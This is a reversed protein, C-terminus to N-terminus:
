KSRRAREALMTEAIDYAHVALVANRCILERDPTNWGDIAAMAGLAQGAFYDLLTMGDSWTHDGVPFASGGDDRKEDSM